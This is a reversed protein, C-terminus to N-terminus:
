FGLADASAPEQGPYRTGAAAPQDRAPEQAPVPVKDGNGPEAVWSPATHVKRVELRGVPAAAPEDRTQAPVFGGLEAESYLGGLQNPFTRRLADAEACKVIMGGPDTEWRSRGKNFSELRVRAKTPHGWGQRYVTAWGGLLTDGPLFFDGVLDAVEGSAAKVIVGSDMGDFAPHAEARKMFAQHATILNFEPGDKADFGVIFADGEFPNLGRSKCLMIFKLAQDETCRQGSKTPKCLMQQVMGVSLKIAERQQFPVYEVVRDLISPKSPESPESM